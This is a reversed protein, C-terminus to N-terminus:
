AGGEDLTMRGKYRVAAVLVIRRDEHVDYFGRYDGARLRYGALVPPELKKITQGSVRSPQDQLYREIADLVSAQDVTRFARVDHM